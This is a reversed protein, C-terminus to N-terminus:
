VMVAVPLSLSYCKKISTTLSPLLHIWPNKFNMHYFCTFVNGCDCKVNAQELYAATLVWWYFSLWHCTRPSGFSVPTSPFSLSIWCVLKQLRKHHCMTCSLNKWTISSQLDNVNRYIAQHSHTSDTSYRLSAAAIPTVSCGHYATSFGPPDAFAGGRLKCSKCSKIHQLRM